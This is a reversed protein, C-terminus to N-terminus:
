KYLRFKRRKVKIQKKPRCGNFIKKHKINFFCKKSKSNFYKLLFLKSIIDIIKKRIITPTTINVLVVPYGKVQSYNIGLLFKTLFNIVKEKFNRQTIRIKYDSAQKKCIIAQKISETTNYSDDQKYFNENKPTFVSRNVEDQNTSEILLTNTIPSITQVTDKKILSMKVYTVSRLIIFANNPRIVLNLYLHKVPLSKKALNLKFLRKINIHKLQFSAIFQELSERDKKRKYMKLRKESVSLNKQKNLVDTM